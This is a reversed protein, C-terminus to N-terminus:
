YTEMKNAGFAAITADDLQEEESKAAPAKPVINDTDVNDAALASLNNNKAQASAFRMTLTPSPESGDKICAM